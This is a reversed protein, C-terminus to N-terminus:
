GKPRVKGRGRSSLLPAGVRRTVIRRPTASAYKYFGLTNFTLFGNHTYALVGLPQSSTCQTTSNILYVQPLNLVSRAPTNIKSGRCSVYTGILGVPFLPAALNIVVQGVANQTYGTIPVKNPVPGSAGYWGWVGGLATIRAVWAEFLVQWNPEAAVTLVGFDIDIDDPIGRMYMQKHKAFAPDQMRVLVAADPEDASVVVQSSPLVVYDISNADNKVPNEQSVRIGILSCPKALIAGRANALFQAATMATNYDLASQSQWHTESWGHKPGDFFFTTKFIFPV